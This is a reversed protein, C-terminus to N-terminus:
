EEIRPKINLKAAIQAALDENSIDTKEEPDPEDTLRISMRLPRGIMSSIIEAIRTREEEVLTKIVANAAVVKFEKETIGVLGTSYRAMNLSGIEDGLMDWMRDWLDDLYSGDMHEPDPQEVIMSAGAMKVENPILSSNQSVQGEEPGQSERKDDFDEWRLVFSEQKDTGPSQTATQEPQPNATQQPQEPQAQPREGKQPRPIAPEEPQISVAPKTEELPVEAQRPQMPEAQPRVEQRPQMPEAQSRVAQQPQIPRQFRGQSIGTPEEGLGASLIVIALEMLTRPQTSYKADSITKAITKIGNNIDGLATRRAQDILRAANEKSINLIDEPNRVFKSVLLSRYHALWDALLQRIDKGDRLVEDLAILAGSTDRHLVSETLRIYFEDSITGLCDLVDEREVVEGETAGALCQDLLSLGDRVSGDANAALLRLAGDSISIGRSSCIRAMDRAILSDPVRKFDFRMCRSLITQPLVQPDTTALIFIVNEPPEELTKLLANFAPTSLMHVEDIIYVKKSGVSPPYNVSERLERVNDVGNNSAADIEIVDIFTGAKISMCNPCTGCPKEGEGTCNVGKALLRALTTKGTGRTGTFLYAHSTTGSMIQNKLVRVIHEQGLVADFTEPREVRYLAQYM